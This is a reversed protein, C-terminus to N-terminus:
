TALGFGTEDATLTFGGSSGSVRLTSTGIGGKLFFGSTASPYFQLAASLNAQTLTAEGGFDDEITKSWGSM